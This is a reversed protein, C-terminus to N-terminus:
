NSVLDLRGKKKRGIKFHCFHQLSIEGIQSETIFLGKPIEITKFVYVPRSQQYQVKTASLFVMQDCDEKSTLNAYHHIKITIDKLFTVHNSKILYAPSASEYDTPLEIPGKFWPHIHLHANEESSLSQEPIHVEIGAEKSRIIAGLHTITARIPTGFFLIGPCTPQDIM